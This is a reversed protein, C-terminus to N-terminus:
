PSRLREGYFNEHLAMSRLRNIESYASFDLLNFSGPIKRREIELKIRAENAKGAFYRTWESDHNEQTRQRERDGSSYRRDWEYYYKKSISDALPANSFYADVKMINYQASIVYYDYRRNNNRIHLIKIYNSYGTHGGNILEQINPIHIEMAFHEFRLIYNDILDAYLEYGKGFYMVNEVEIIQNSLVTFENRSQNSTSACGCLIFCFVTLKIILKL